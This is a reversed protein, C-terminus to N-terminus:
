KMKTGSNGTSGFGGKGRATAASFAPHGGDVVVMRTPAFDPRVLQFLSEGRHVTYPAQSYNRLAVKLTGQYGADITGISNALDLPTKGISSRPVILFAAYSGGDALHRVRVKLDIIVPLGSNWAVPAIDFDEAFRLDIGSDGLPGGLDDINAYLDEAESEPALLFCPAPPAAASSFDSADM